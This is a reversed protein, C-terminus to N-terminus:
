TAYVEAKLYGVEELLRNMDLEEKERHQRLAGMAEEREAEARAKSLYIEELERELDHRSQESSVRQEFEMQLLEETRRIRSQFLCEVGVGFRRRISERRIAAQYYRVKGEEQAGKMAAGDAELAKAGKKAAKDAEQFREQEHRMAEMKKNNENTRMHNAWGIFVRVGLAFNKFKLHAMLRKAAEAAQAEQIRVKSAAKFDLHQQSAVPRHQLLTQTPSDVQTKSGM